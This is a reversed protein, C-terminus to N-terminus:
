LAGPFGAPYEFPSPGSGNGSPGDDTQCQGAPATAYPCLGSAAASPSFMVLLAVAAMALATLEALALKM